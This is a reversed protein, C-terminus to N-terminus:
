RAKQQNEPFHDTSGVALYDRVATHFASKNDLVILHGCDPITKLTFHPAQRICEEGIKPPAVSDREAHIFLTEVKVASVLKTPYYNALLTLVDLAV